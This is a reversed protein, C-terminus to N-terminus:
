LVYLYPYKVRGQKGMATGNSKVDTREPIDWRFTCNKFVVMNEENTVKSGHPKIEEM